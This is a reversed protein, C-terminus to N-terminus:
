VDMLLSVLKESTSENTAGEVEKDTWGHSMFIEFDLKRFPLLM